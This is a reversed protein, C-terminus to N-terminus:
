ALPIIITSLEQSNSASRAIKNCIMLSQLSKCQGNKHDVTRADLEPGKCPSQASFSKGDRWYKAGFSSQLLM